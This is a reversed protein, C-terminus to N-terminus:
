ATVTCDATNDAKNVLRNGAAGCIHKGATVVTLNPIFSVARIVARANDTFDLHLLDGINHRQVDDVADIATCDLCFRLCDANQCPDARPISSSNVVNRYINVAASVKICDKRTASFDSNDAAAAVTSPRIFCGVDRVAKRRNTCIPERNGIQAQAPLIDGAVAVIINFIGFTCALAEKLFIGTFQGRCFWGLFCTVPIIRVIFWGVFLCLPTRGRSFYFCVTQVYAIVDIVFSIRINREQGSQCLILVTCRVTQPPNATTCRRTRRGFWVRGIDLGVTVFSVNEIVGARAIIVIGALLSRSHHQLEAFGRVTLDCFVNINGVDGVLDDLVVILVHQVAGLGGLRSFDLDLGALHLFRVVVDIAAVLNRPFHRGIRVGARGGIVTHLNQGAIGYAVDGPDGVQGRVDVLAAIGKHGVFCPRTVEDHTYRGVVGVVVRRLGVVGSGAAHLGKHVGQRCRLNLEPQYLSRAAAKVPILALRRIFFPSFELILNDRHQFVVGFVRCVLCPGNLQGISLMSIIEAALIALLVDAQGM